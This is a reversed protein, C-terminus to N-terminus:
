LIPHKKLEEAIENILEKKKKLSWNKVDHEDEYLLALQNDCEHVRQKYSEKQIISHRKRLEENEWIKKSITSRKNSYEKTSMTKRRTECNRKRYDPDKWKEKHIKKQNKLWEKNHFASENMQKRFLEDEWVKKMTVSHRKRCEKNPIPHDGGTTSNFVNREGLKNRLKEIYFIEKENLWKAVPLYEIDTAKYKYALIQLDKPLYEYIIFEFSDGGYKNYSNQLHSSGYKKKYLCGQHELWRKIFCRAQGVYICGNTNCRILYIGGKNVDNQTYSHKFTLLNISKM